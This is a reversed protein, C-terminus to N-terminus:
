AEAAGPTGAADVPALAASDSRGLLRDYVAGYGGRQHSWALEQEIQQRGLSGM